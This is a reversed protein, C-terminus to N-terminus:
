TEWPTLKRSNANLNRKWGVKSIMFFVNHARITSSRKSADGFLSDKLKLFCSHSNACDTLYFDSCYVCKM